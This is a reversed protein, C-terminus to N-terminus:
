KINETIGNLSKLQEETFIAGTSNIKNIIKGVTTKGELVMAAWHPMNKEFSAQSYYKKSDPANKGDDDCESDAIGLAAKLTYRYLYANTSGLGQIDNKGGSKDRAATLTTEESHGMEHQIICTVHLLEGDPAQKFRYSLGNQMLPERINNAIDELSSSNFRSDKYANKPVTPCNYQFNSFSKNFAKIAESKEWRQQMDFLREMATIDMGKEIALQILSVPNISPIETQTIENSSSKVVENM